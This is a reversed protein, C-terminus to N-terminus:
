YNNVLWMNNQGHRVVPYLQDCASCNKEYETNYIFPGQGSSESEIRAVHSNVLKSVM